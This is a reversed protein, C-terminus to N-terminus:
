GSGGRRGQQEISHCQLGVETRGAAQSWHLGLYPVLGPHAELRALSGLEQELAALQRAAVEQQERERSTVKGRGLGGLCWRQVAYLRGKSPSFGSYTM